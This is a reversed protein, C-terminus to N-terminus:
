RSGRIIPLARAPEPGSVGAKFAVLLEAVLDTGAANMTAPDNLTIITVDGDRAVKIKEYSM